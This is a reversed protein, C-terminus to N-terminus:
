KQLVKQVAQLVAEVTVNEIRYMPEPNDIAQGRGWPNVAAIAHRGIRPFLRAPNTPGFILVTPVNLAAALHTPGTDNGIVVAARKLLAALQPLNTRGALVAAPVGSAEKIQEALSREGASGVLVVPWGAQQHLYAATQAFRGAPWCKRLHASGAALVAYPRDALNEAQLLADADQRVQESLFLGFEVPEMPVGLQKLLVEYVDFIHASNPKPIQHTYFLRAGERAEQLGIRVRCGSLWAFLGSRLLGQLDIVVDYRGERLRRIFSTTERIAAATPWRGMTKRDFLVREDVGAVCDFLGALETRVMWSIHAKPYARRLAALVPLAHVIDGLSSPKIILVRGNWDPQRFHELFDKGM